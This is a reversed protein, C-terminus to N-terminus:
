AEGETQTDAYTDRRYANSVCPVRADLPQNRDTELWPVSGGMGGVALSTPVVTIWKTSLVTWILISTSAVPYYGSPHSPFARALRGVTKGGKPSPHAPARELTERM